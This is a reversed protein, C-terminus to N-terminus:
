TEQETLQIKTEERNISHKTRRQSLEQLPTDVIKCCYLQAVGSIARETCIILLWYCPTLFGFSTWNSLCFVTNSITSLKVHENWTFINRGKDAGINCCCLWFNRFNRLFMSSSWLNHNKVDLLYSNKKVCLAYLLIPFPCFISFCFRAPGHWLVWPAITM